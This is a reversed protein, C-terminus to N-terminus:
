GGAGVETVVPRTALKLALTKSLNLLFKAALESESRILRQLVGESLAILTVQDTAARVDATRKGHLLFAIEGFPQGRGLRGVTRGQSRVEVEGHLVVFITRTGQAEGVITQGRSCEILQASTVLQEFETHTLNEFAGITQESRSLMEFTESWSLEDLGDFPIVAHASPLLEVLAPVLDPTIPDSDVHRLLPSRISRLHDVDDTIMVLPVMMGFGAQDFSSACPRFGLAQYLNLLHAQCDAFSLAIGRERQLRSAEIILSFPVTSSRFAEKVLFRINVAMRDRPVLTAYRGIDFGTEFEAPFGEHGFLIGLSGVVEGDVTACLVEAQEILPDRLIRADHDAVDALTGMEEYFVEYALRYCDDRQEESAIGTRVGGM